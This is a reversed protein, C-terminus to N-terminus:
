NRLDFLDIEDELEKTQRYESHLKILDGESHDAGRFRAGELVYEVFGKALVHSRMLKFGFKALRRSFYDELLWNESLWQESPPELVLSIARREELTPPLNTTMLTNLRHRSFTEDYDRLKAAPRNLSTSDTGGTEGILSNLAEKFTPNEM